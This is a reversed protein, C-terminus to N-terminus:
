RAPNARTIVIDGSVSNCRLTLTADGNGGGDAAADLESRVHGSISSLDLYVGVGPPVALAVDGSVSTVDARGSAISGIQVDGSATKVEASGGAEAVRLDGSATKAKLDGGVREITADGSATGVSVDGAAETLRVDGSATTLSAHGTIRDATVDGSATYGELAGLEGTCCVDASATRVTVSSGEPLAITLDLSTDGRLHVRKPVNVTLTGDEFSVETEAILKEAATSGSGHQPLLTVTVTQTPAAAVNVNGAPLSIKAEIPGAANFEWSTVTGTEKPDATIETV